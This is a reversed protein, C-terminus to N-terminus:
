MWVCATHCRLTRGFSDFCQCLVAVTVTLEFLFAYIATYFDRRIGQSLASVLAHPSLGPYTVSLFTQLQISCFLRSTQVLRGSRSRPLVERPGLAMGELLAIHDGRGTARKRRRRRRRRPRTASDCLRAAPPQELLRTVRTLPQSAM